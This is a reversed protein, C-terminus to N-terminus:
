LLQRDASSGDARDQTVRDASDARVRRLFAEGVKSKQRRHLAASEKRWCLWKNVPECYRIDQAAVIVGRDSALAADFLEVGTTRTILALNDRHPRTWFRLTELFQRATTRLIERHWEEREAPLAEPYAIELNVRAVHSERADLRRWLAALGDGIRNLVPWPLRGIAAATVYLLASAFRAM